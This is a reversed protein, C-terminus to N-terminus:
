PTVQAAPTTLVHEIRGLGPVTYSVRVARPPVALGEGGAPVFVTDRWVTGVLFDLRLDEAADLVTMAMPASERAADPYAWARRELREGDYAWAVRQLTSRPQVGGPNAWGARTFVLIERMEGPRAPELPDAGQLNGAFLRPDSLGEPGRFPRMVIQGIDERLLLRAQQVGALTDLQAGHVERSRLATTLLTLAIASVLAFIMVAVLVETLTFGSERRMM